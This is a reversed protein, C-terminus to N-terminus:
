KIYNRLFELVKAYHQYYFYGTLLILGPYIITKELKGGTKIRLAKIPPIGLNIPIPFFLPIGETSIADALLHSCFGIMFGTWVIKMDVILASSILGLLKNLVFGTVVVGLLSHTIMRHGGFLPSLMKGLLSGGPIKKWIDSSANDLDPYLGGLFSAIVTTVLTALSMEVLPSNVFVWSLASFAALDHTRGTM